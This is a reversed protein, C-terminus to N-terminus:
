PCRITFERTKVKLRESDAQDLSDDFDTLLTMVGNIDSNAKRAVLNPM